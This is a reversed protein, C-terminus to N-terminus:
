FVTPGCLGSVSSSPQQAPVGSGGVSPLTRQLINNLTVNTGDSSIDVSGYATDTTPNWTATIQDAGSSYLGGPITLFQWTQASALVPCQLAAVLPSVPQGVLQVFGGAQNALEIASSEGKPPDNTPMYAAGTNIYNATIILSLLGRQAVTFKGANIVQPGQPLGFISQSFKNASDDIVYIKPGTLLTNANANTTGAVYPAFYSRPGPQSVASTDPPKAISNTKTGCGTIELILLLGVLLRRKGAPSHFSNHETQFRLMFRVMDNSVEM